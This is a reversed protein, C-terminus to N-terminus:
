DDEVPPVPVVLVPKVCRRLVRQATDGMLAGKLVGHGHRGVVVLDYDEGHAKALIREVPDGLDVSVEYVVYPQNPLAEDCFREVEDRIAAEPRRRRILIERAEELSRHKIEDWLSENIYGVLHKEFDHTEVVHFVTLEAGYCHALAAAYPFAQRGTESLDTTYLIRHFGIRPLSLGNNM